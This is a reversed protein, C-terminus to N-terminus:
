ASRLEALGDVDIPEAGGSCWWCGVPGPHVFMHDRSGGTALPAERSLDLMWELLRREVASLPAAAYLAATADDAGLGEREPPHPGRRSASRPRGLGVWTM